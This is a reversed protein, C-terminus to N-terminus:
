DYLYCLPTAQSGTDCYAHWRGLKPENKRRQLQEELKFWIRETLVSYQMSKKQNKCRTPM